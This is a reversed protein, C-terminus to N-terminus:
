SGAVRQLVAEGPDTSNAPFNSYAAVADGAANMSVSLGTNQYADNEPLLVSPSLSTGDAAFLRVAKVNTNNVDGSQPVNVNYGVIFDGGNDIAVEPGDAVSNVSLDSTVVIDSGSPVNGPQYQRAQIANIVPAGGRWALIYQGNRNMAMAMSPGDVNSIDFKAGSSAGNLGYSQGTVGDNSNWIVTFNGSGDMGMTSDSVAHGSLSGNKFVSKGSDVTVTSTKPKGAASFVRANVSSNESYSIPVLSDVEIGRRDSVWAVVFDGADDMAVDVDPGLLHSAPMNAVQVDGSVPTGDAQFTKAHLTTPYATYSFVLLKGLPIEWHKPAIMDAWAVTFQGSANVAVSPSAVRGEGSAHAAAIQFESGAPTGSSDYRRAVINGGGDIWVAVVNGNADSAVRPDSGEANQVNGAVIPSGILDGPAAFAAQAFCGAVAVAIATRAGFGATESGSRSMTREM